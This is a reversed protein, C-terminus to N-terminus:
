LTTRKKNSMIQFARVNEANYWDLIARLAKPVAFKTASKRLKKFQAVSQCPNHSSLRKM